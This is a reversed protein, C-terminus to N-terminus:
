VDSLACLLRSMQRSQSAVREHVADPVRLERAALEVIGPTGDEQYLRTMALLHAYYVGRAPALSGDGASHDLCARWHRVGTVIRDDLKWAGLLGDLLADRETYARRLASGLLRQGSTTEVRAAAAVFIVEDVRHLLAAATLTRRDLRLPAAILGAFAATALTERWLLRMEPERGTAAFLTARLARLAAQGSVDIRMSGDDGDTLAAVAASFSEPPSALRAQERELAQGLVDRPALRRNPRHFSLIKAGPM